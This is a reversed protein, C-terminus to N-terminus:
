KWAELSQDVDDVTFNYKNWKRLRDQGIHGVTERM